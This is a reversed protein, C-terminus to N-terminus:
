WLGSNHPTQPSFPPRQLPPRYGEGAGGQFGANQQMDPGGWPRGSDQSFGGGYVGSGMFQVHGQSAGPQLMRPHFESIFGEGGDVPGRGPPPTVRDGGGWGEGQGGGSHPRIGTTDLQHFFGGSPHNPEWRGQMLPAMRPAAAWKQPGGNEQMGSGSGPGPGLGPGPGPGMPSKVVPQNSPGPPYLHGHFPPPARGLTEARGMQSPLDTGHPSGLPASSMGQVEPRLSHPIHVPLSPGSWQAMQSHSLHSPPPPQRGHTMVKEGGRLISMSMGAPQQVEPGKGGIMIQGGPPTPGPPLRPGTAATAHQMGGQTHSALPPPQQVAHPMGEECRAMPPGLGGPQQADPGKRIMMGQPASRPGLSHVSNHLAQEQTPVNHQLDAHPHLLHRHDQVLLQVQPQVVSPASQQSQGVVPGAPDHVPPSVHQQDERLQMHQTPLPGPPGMQPPMPPPRWVHQNGGPWHQDSMAHPQPVRHEAHNPPLPQQSQSPPHLPPPAINQQLPLPTRQDPALPPQFRDGASFPGRQQQDSTHLAEPQGIPPIIQSQGHVHRQSDLCEQPPPQKLPPPHHETHSPNASPQYREQLPSPEKSPLPPPMIRQPAMDGTVLAPTGHVPASRTHQESAVGLKQQGALLISGGPQGAGQVALSPKQDQLLQPQRLQEHRITADQVPLQPRTLLVRPQNFSSSSPTPTPLLPGLRPSPGQLGLIPLVPAALVSPATNHDGQSPAHPLTGLTGKAAAEPSALTKGDGSQHPGLGAFPVSILPATFGPPGGPLNKMNALSAASSPPPTPGGQPPTQALLLGQFNSTSPAPPPPTRAQQPQAVPLPMGTRPPPPPPPPHGTAGQVPTSADASSNTSPQQVLPPLSSSCPITATSPSANARPLVQQLGPLTMRSAFAVLEERLALAMAHSEGQLAGLSPQQRRTDDTESSLPVPCLGPLLQQIQEVLTQELTAPGIGGGSPIRPGSVQAPLAVSMAGSSPQQRQSAPEASPWRASRGEPTTALVAVQSSSGTQEWAKAGSASQQVHNDKGHGVMAGSRSSHTQSENGSQVATRIADSLIAVIGTGTDGMPAASKQRSSAGSAAEPLPGGSASLGEAQGGGPGDKWSSAGLLSQLAINGEVGSAAFSKSSTLRAVLDPNQLLMALLPADQGSVGHQGLLTELGSGDSGSASEMKRDAAAADSLAPSANPPAESTITSPEEPPRSAGPTPETGLQGAAAALPPEPESVVDPVAAEGQEPKGGESTAASEEVPVSEADDQLATPDTVPESASLELESPIIPTLSEDYDAEQDWPEQAVDPLDVMNTGGFFEEERRLRENQVAVEKSEEGYAVFWLDSLRVVEPTRWPIKEREMAEIAAAMEELSLRLPPSTEMPDEMSPEIQAQPDPVPVTAPADHLASSDVGVLGERSRQAFRADSGEGPQANPAVSPGDSHSHAAAAPPKSPTDDRSIPEDAKELGGKQDPDVTTTTPPLLVSVPAPCIATGSKVSTDGDSTSKAAASGDTAPKALLRGDAEPDIASGGDDRPKTAPGGSVAPKAATSAESSPKAPLICWTNDDPRLRLPTGPREITGIAGTKWAEDDWDFIRLPTTPREPSDGVVVGKAASMKKRGDETGAGGLAGRGGQTRKSRDLKSLNPGLASTYGHFHSVGPLVAGGSPGAAKSRSGASEKVHKEKGRVGDVKKALGGNEGNIISRKRANAKKIDDGATSRYAQAQGTTPLKGTKEDGRDVAAVSRPAGGEEKEIVQVKRKAKAQDVLSARKKLGDIQGTTATMGSRLIVGMDVVLIGM